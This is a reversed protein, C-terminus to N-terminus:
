QVEVIIGVELNVFSHIANLHNINIPLYVTGKRTVKKVTKKIKKTEEPRIEETINHDPFSTNPYVCSIHENPNINNNKIWLYIFHKRLMKIILM